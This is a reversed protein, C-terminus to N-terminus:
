GLRSLRDRATALATEDGDVLYDGLDRVAQVLRESTELPVDGQLSKARKVHDVLAGLTTRAESDPHDELWTVLDRRYDSVAKAYALGRAARMSEPVDAVAPRDGADAGRVLELVYLREDDTPDRARAYVDIAQLLEHAALFTDDLPHLDGGHIFGRQRLYERLTPKLDGAVDAVDTDDDGLANQHPSLDLAEAGATHQTRDDLGVSRLSECNPCAVSGTDYYSWRHGCDKCERSGRIKM